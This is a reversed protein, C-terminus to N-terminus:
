ILVPSATQKYILQNMLGNRFGTQPHLRIYNQQKQHVSIKLGGSRLDQM